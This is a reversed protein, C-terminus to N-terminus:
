WITWLVWLLIKSVYINCQSKPIALYSDWLVLSPNHNDSYRSAYFTCSHYGCNRQAM